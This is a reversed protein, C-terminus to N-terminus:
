AAAKRVYTRREPTGGRPMSQSGRGPPRHRYGVPEPGLDKAGCRPCVYVTLEEEEETM